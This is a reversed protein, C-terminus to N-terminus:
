STTLTKEEQLFTRIMEKGGGKNKQTQKEGDGEDEKVIGNVDDESYEGRLPM